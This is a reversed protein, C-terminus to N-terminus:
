SWTRPSCGAAQLLSYASATNCCRQAVFLLRVCKFQPHARFLSRKNVSFPNERPNPSLEEMTHFATHASAHFLGVPVLFEAIVLLLHGSFRARQGTKMTSKLKIRTLNERFAFLRQSALICACAHV